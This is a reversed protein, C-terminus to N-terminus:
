LNESTSEMSLIEKANFTVVIKNRPSKGTLEEESLLAIINRTTSNAM